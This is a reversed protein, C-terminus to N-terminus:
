RDAQYTLVDEAEANLAEANQDIVALDRRDAARRAEATLTERLIREIARSRSEGKRVARDLKKVVDESLTVSTKLRMSRIISWM